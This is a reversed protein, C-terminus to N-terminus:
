PARVRAGLRKGLVASYKSALGPAWDFSAGRNTVTGPGPSTM